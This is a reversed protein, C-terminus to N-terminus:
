KLEARLRALVEDGPLWRAEGSAIAAERRDIEEAWAVEWAPDPPGTDLSVLLRVLLESREAAPLALVEAALVELRTAM